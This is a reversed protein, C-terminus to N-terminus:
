VKPYPPCGPIGTPLKGAKQDFRGPVLEQAKKLGRRDPKQKGPSPTHLTQHNVSFVSKKTSYRLFNDLYVNFESQKLYGADGGLVPIMRKASM